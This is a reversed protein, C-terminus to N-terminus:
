LKAVVWPLLFCLITANDEIYISYTNLGTELNKDINNNIYDIVYVGPCILNFFVLIFWYNNFRFYEISISWCVYCLSIRFTLDSYKDLYHGLKSCKNYKRAVMGDLCDLVRELTFFLLIENSNLYWLHYISLYKIYFNFLTIYIPHVLYFLPLFYSLIPYTFLSDFSIILPQGM